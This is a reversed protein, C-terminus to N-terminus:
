ARRSGCSGRVEALKKRAVAEVVEALKSQRRSTEAEVFELQQEDLRNRSSRRAERSATWVVHRNIPGLCIVM